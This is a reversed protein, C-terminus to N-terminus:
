QFETTRVFLMHHIEHERVLMGSSVKRSKNAIEIWGEGLPICYSVM